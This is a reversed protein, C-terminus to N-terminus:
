TQDSKWARYLWIGVGLAGSAVCIISVIWPSIVGLGPNVSSWPSFPEIDEHFLCDLTLHSYAGLSAGILASIWPTRAPLSIDAGKCDSAFGNWLRKAIQGVYKGLVAGIPISLSAGVVTHWFRHLPFEGRVINCLVEIDIVIQTIVFAIFSFYRSAISKLFVGSGFHLPTFPM